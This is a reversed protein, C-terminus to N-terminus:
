AATVATVKSDGPLKNNNLFKVLLIVATVANKDFCKKSVKKSWEKM